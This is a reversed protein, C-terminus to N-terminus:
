ECTHSEEFGETQTLYVGRVKANIDAFKPQIQRFIKMLHKIDKNTMDGVVNIDIWAKHWRQTKM